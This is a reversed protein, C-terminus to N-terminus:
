RAPVVTEAVPRRAALDEALGAANAAGDWGDRLVASLEASRRAQRGDGLLRLVARGIAGRRLPPPYLGVGVGLREARYIRGIQDRRRPHPLVVVPTGARAAECFTIHGGHIVAASAEEMCQRSPLLERATVRNGLEALEDPDCLGGTAALVRVPLHVLESVARRLNEPDGTSGQTVYVLPLDGESPIPLGAGPASWLVPGVYRWSAPLGVAPDLEPTTALAVVTDVCGAVAHAPAAPLGRRARFDAIAEILPRRRRSRAAARLRARGVRWLRRPHTLDRRRDGWVVPRRGFSTKALYHMLHVSPLDAVESALRGAVGSSSITTAPELEAILALHGEVATSLEEVSEFWADPQWEREPPVEPVPRWEFGEREILDPRTGGYAFIAEHGGNRLERAVALCAGLHALGTSPSHPLMLFRAMQLRM